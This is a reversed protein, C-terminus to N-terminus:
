IGRTIWRRGGSIMQRLCTRRTRRRFADGRSRAPVLAVFDAGVLSESQRPSHDCDKGAAAREGASFIASARRWGAMRRSPRVRAVSTRDPGGDGSGSRGCANWGGQGMSAFDKGKGSRAAALREADGRLPIGDRDLALSQAGNFESNAEPLKFSHVANGEFFALGERTVIWIRGSPAQEIQEVDTSPLGQDLGFRIVRAGDYRLLGDRTGIWIFGLQDQLICSPTVSGLGLEEGVRQFVYHPRDPVSLDAADKTQAGGGLPAALLLMLALAPSPIRM